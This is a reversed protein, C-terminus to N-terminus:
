LAVLGGLMLLPAVPVLHPGLVLGIATAIYPAVQAAPTVEM